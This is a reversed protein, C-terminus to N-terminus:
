HHALAHRAWTLHAHHWAWHHWLTWLSSRLACARHTSRLHWLLLWLTSWLLGHLTTGEVSGCQSGSWRGHLLLHNALLEVRLDGLNLRLHCAFHGTHHKFHVVTLQQHKQLRLLLHPGLDEFSQLDESGLLARTPRQNKLMLKTTLVVSPRSQKAM